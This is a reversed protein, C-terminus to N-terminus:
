KKLFLEHLEGAIDGKIRGEIEYNDPYYDEGEEVHFQKDSPHPIPAVIFGPLGMAGGDLVVLISFALGELKETITKEPIGDWYNVLGRIHELFQKRIEGVTYERCM